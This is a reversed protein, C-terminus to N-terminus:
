KIKSLLKERVPEDMTILDAVYHRGTETEVFGMMEAKAEIKRGSRFFFAPGKKYAEEYDKSMKRIEDIKNMAATM